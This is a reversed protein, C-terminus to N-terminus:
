SQKSGSNTFETQSSFVQLIESGSFHETNVTHNRGDVYPKGIDSGTFIYNILMGRPHRVHKQSPGNSTRSSEMLSLREQAPKFRLPAVPADARRPCHDPSAQM